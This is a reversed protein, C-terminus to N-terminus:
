VSLVFYFTIFSFLYTLGVMMKWALGVSIEAGVAHSPRYTSIEPKQIQVRAKRMAAGYVMRPKVALETM